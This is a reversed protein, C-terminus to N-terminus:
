AHIVNCATYQASQGCGSSTVTALTCCCLMGSGGCVQHKGRPRATLGRHRPPLPWCDQLQEMGSGNCPARSGRLDHMGHTRIRVAVAARAAAAMALAAADRRCGRSMSGAAAAGGGRAKHGSRESGCRTSCLEAANATAGGATTGCSTMPTRGRACPRQPRHGGPDPTIDSRSNKTKGDLTYAYEHM